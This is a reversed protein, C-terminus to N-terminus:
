EPVILRGLSRVPYGCLDSCFVVDPKSRGRAATRQESALEGVTWIPVASLMERTVAALQTPSNETWSIQADKYADDRTFVGPWHRLSDNTSLEQGTDFHSLKRYLYWDGEDITWFQAAALMNSYFQPTGFVRCLVNWGSSTTIAFRAGAGLFTDLVPTRRRSHAYDVFRHHNIPARSMNSDGVRFVWGGEDLVLRIASEYSSIESNRFRETTNAPTEGRYSPERVHVVVFWDSVGLGLDRLYSLGTELHAQNLVARWPYKGNEILRSNIINIFSYWFVGSNEFIPFLARPLTLAKLLADRRLLEASSDDIFSVDGKFCSTLAENRLKEGTLLFFLRPEKETLQNLRILSLPLLHNGFSGFFVEAPLISIQLQDLGLEHLWTSRYRGYQQAVDFAENRQAYFLCEAKRLYLPPYEPYLNLLEDLSLLQRDNSM